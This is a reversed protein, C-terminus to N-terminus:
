AKGRTTSRNRSAKRATIRSTSGGSTGKPSQATLENSQQWGPTLQPAPGWYVNFWGYIPYPMQPDPVVGANAALLPLLGVSVSNLGYRPDFDLPGGGSSMFSIPDYECDDIGMNVFEAAFLKTSDISETADPYEALLQPITYTVKHYIAPIPQLQDGYLHVKLLVSIVEGNADVIPEWEIASGDRCHIQGTITLAQNSGRAPAAPPSVLFGVHHEGVVNAQTPPIVDDFLTGFGLPASGLPPTNGWVSPALPVNETADRKWSDTWSLVKSEVGEGEGGGVYYLQSTMYPRGILTFRTWAAPGNFGQVLPAQVATAVGMLLYPHIETHLSSHGADVIWRGYAAVRDGLRPEFGPPILDYDIEVGMTNPVRYKGANGGGILNYPSVAFRDDVKLSFDLDHKGHFPHFFPNEIGSEHPASTTTGDLDGGMVAIGTVGTLDAMEDQYKRHGTPDGLGPHTLLPFWEFVGTPFTIANGSGDVGYPGFSPDMASQAEATVAGNQWLHGSMDTLELISIGEATPEVPLGGETSAISGVSGLSM